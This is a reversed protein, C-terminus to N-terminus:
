PVECSRNVLSSIFSYHNDYGEDGGTFHGRFRVHGERDIIVSYPTGSLGPFLLVQDSSAFEKIANFAKEATQPDVIHYFDMGLENIKGYPNVDATTVYQLMEQPTRDFRDEPPRENIVSSGFSLNVM